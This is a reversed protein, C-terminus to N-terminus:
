KCHKCTASRKKDYDSQAAMFTMCEKFCTEVVEDSPNVGACNYFSEYERIIADRSRDDHCKQSLKLCCKRATEIMQKRDIDPECTLIQKDDSRFSYNPPLNM